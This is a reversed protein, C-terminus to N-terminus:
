LEQNRPTTEAKSVAVFLDERIGEVVGPVFFATESSVVTLHPTIGFKQASEQLKPLARHALLLTGVVNVMVSTEMGEAMTFNGLAVSANEILADLRDLALVRKAFKEISDFSALDIEWVEGVDPRKTAKGIAEIAATGKEM